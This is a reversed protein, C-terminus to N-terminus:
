SCFAGDVRPLFRMPIFVAQQGRKYNEFDFKGLPVLLSGQM